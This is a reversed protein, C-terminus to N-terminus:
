KGKSLKDLAEDYYDNRVYIYSPYDSYDSFVGFEESISSATDPTYAKIYSSPIKKYNENVYDILEPAYEDLTYVWVTTTTLFM